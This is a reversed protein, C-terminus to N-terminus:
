KGRSEDDVEEIAAAGRLHNQSPRRRRLLLRRDATLRPGSPTM